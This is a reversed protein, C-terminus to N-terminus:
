EMGYLTNITNDGTSIVGENNEVTINYENMNYIAPTTRRDANNIDNQLKRLAKVGDNGIVSFTAIYGSNMQINLGFKDPFPREQPPSEPYEIDRNYALYTRYVFFGSLGLFLIGFMISKLSFAFISILLFGLAAIVNNRISEKREKSMNKEYRKKDEEYALVAKQFNRKEINQFRFIWTRSINSIKLIDNYYKIHNDGIEIVNSINQTKLDTM